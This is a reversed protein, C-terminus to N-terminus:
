WMTLMSAALQEKLQRSPCNVQLVASPSRLSAKLLRSLGAGENRLTNIPFGGQCVVTRLYLNMLQTSLLRVNWFRLGRKVYEAVALQTNPRRNGGLDLADFIVDWSWPGSRYNRRFWEAGFLCFAACEEAMRLSGRSDFQFKLERRLLDLEDPTVRYRYLPHGDKRDLNSRAIIQNLTDFCSPM